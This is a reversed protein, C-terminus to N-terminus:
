PFNCNVKKQLYGNLALWRLPRNTPFGEQTLELVLKRMHVTTGYDRITVARNGTLDM